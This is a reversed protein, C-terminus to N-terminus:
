VSSKVGIVSFLDNSENLSVTHLENWGKDVPIIETVDNEKLIIKTKLPELFTFCISVCEQPFLQMQYEKVFGWANM